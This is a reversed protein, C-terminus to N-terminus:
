RWPRLDMAWDLDGRPALLAPELGLRDIAALTQTLVRPTGWAIGAMLAPQPQRLGLLWYGGDHAPGLVAARSELAAFAAVLDDGDLQPLDSGIVVVQRAGARFARQVQRQMRLGLGGPGQLQVRDAGLAVGWRRAARGALGDVALVLEFGLRRRGGRAVALTHSTLRSQIRAAAAAGLSGALRRKCRGPAPWRAMVILQSGAPQGM